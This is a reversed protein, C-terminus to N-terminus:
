HQNPASCRQPLSHHPVVAAALSLRFLLMTVGNHCMTNPCGIFKSWDFPAIYGPARRPLLCAADMNSPNHCTATWIVIGPGMIGQGISNAMQWKGSNRQTENMVDLTIHHTASFYAITEPEAGGHTPSAVV